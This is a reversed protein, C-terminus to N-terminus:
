PKDPWIVANPFGSQSPLDRLAQRYAVWEPSIPQSRELSKIVVWDTEALRQDREQRVSTLIAHTYSEAENEDMPLVDWSQVWRDGQKIPKGPVVRQTPEVVPLPIVGVMVYGEPVVSDTMVAPFSINPFRKKINPIPWEVVVGNDIKAFM